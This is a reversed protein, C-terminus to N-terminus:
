KELAKSPPRRAEFVRGVPVTLVWYKEYPEMQRVDRSLRWIPEAQGEGASLTSRGSELSPEIQVDLIAGKTVALTM